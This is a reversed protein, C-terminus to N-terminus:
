IPAGSLSYNVERIIEKEIEDRDKGNVFYETDWKTSFVPYISYNILLDTLLRENLVDNEMCLIHQYFCINLPRFLIPLTSVSYQEQNILIKQDFRFVDFYIYSTDIRSFVDSLQEFISIWESENSSNVQYESYIPITIMKNGKVHDFYDYEISADILVCERERNQNLVYAKENHVQVISVKTFASYQSYGYHFSGDGCNSYGIEPETIPETITSNEYSTCSSLGLFCSFLTVYNLIRRMSKNLKKNYFFDLFTIKIAFFSRM